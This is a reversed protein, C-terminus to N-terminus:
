PELGLGLVFRQPKSRRVKEYEPARNTLYQGHWRSREYEGEHGWARPGLGPLRAGLGAGLRGASKQSVVSAEAQQM